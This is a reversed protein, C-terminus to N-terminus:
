CTSKGPVSACVILNYPNSNQSSWGAGNRFIANSELPVKTSLFVIAVPWSGKRM